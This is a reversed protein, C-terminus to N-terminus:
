RTRRPPLPRSPDPGRRRRAASGSPGRDAAPLRERPLGRMPNAPLGREERWAALDRRVDTYFADMFIENALLVDGSTGRGPSPRATSCCPAPWCRRCTSCRASRAPCRPRSTTASTSCSRSTPQEPGYGGGRVVEVLIRFLQFPDAAGVILDDDAYFRRTSTSPAWSGSGCCSPSSSSSTPAPRTTAPTSASWRGTASPRARPRVVHGLRARGHPLVGARLVQVRAGAAPRRRAPRLDRRPGRGALGPPGPHRGPRPLQHRRRALDQPRALRDRGDRRRLRPQARDGQTRVAPDVHTLSGLKYDDDQFTNRTSRASGCATTRPTRRSSATTTSRTGRSTCRSPRPSAPSGTCRARRRRDEGRRHAAHRALRVGQVAHRLQRLGVLAGRDGAGRPPRRHRQLQDDRQEDGQADATGALQDELHFVEDLRLFGTDPRADGLEVFFEAMEAQWRANVETAAMGALAAQSTPTEFYGILLGDTASSCRTTTGAPARGARALMEPWVARTGTATSRSGSRSSRSSSASASWRISRRARTSQRGLDRASRATAGARREPAAPSESPESTSSASTTRTSCSRSASCSPATPASRSSASSAPRSRTARRAPSTATSWRTRPTRRWTASTRPTGCRSSAQRHRGQRVRADPEAHRPRDARGQGEQRVEVPLAGGRRHRGHDPSIIGKLNPHKQLLAATKDFSTQDDDNGYVTDVLKINPHNAALEKKMTRRDLREPQHRQRAASLIAIEGSDGIQEAIMDVEVKAIGEATAQNIFLDRCDPSTDSDFTVVKTGADPRANAISDCLAKPDNASLVIASISRSRRPTSTSCRPTRAPRRRASRRYTGGFEKVAKEGGKDSTDFYPNGLNKPIFTITATKGSGDDVAAAAATAPRRMRGTGACRWLSPPSAPRRRRSHFKM